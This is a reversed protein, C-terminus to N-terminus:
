GGSSGGLISFTSLNVAYLDAGRLRVWWEIRRPYQFRKRWSRKDCDPVTEGM